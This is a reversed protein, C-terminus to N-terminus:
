ASCSDAGNGELVNEKFINGDTPGKLGCDNMAIRNELFTNGTASGTPTVLFEIGALNSIITNEIILNGTAIVNVRIGAVSSGSVLNEKLINDVGGFVLIGIRNATFTNEKIVNQRSNSRLMIARVSSDQFENEEIVNGVSGAQADIGEPNQRFVNGKIEIDTANMMRVAVAFNQITGGKISVNTTNTVIIGVGSGPGMITHGNLNLTIGDAGVTLGNGVCTLDHDLKLNAIITAGCLDSATVGPVLLTTLGVVVVAATCRTALHRSGTKTSQM